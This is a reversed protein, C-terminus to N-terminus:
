CAATIEIEVLAEPDALATVGVLTGAHRCGRSRLLDAMYDHSALMKPMDVVFVNLRVVHSFDMDAQRLVTEINAVVQDLQRNMDGPSVNRGDEGVATQGAVYLTTSAGSVKNGHVFGYQEQWQWPNIIEIKM